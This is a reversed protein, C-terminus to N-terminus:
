KKKYIINKPHIIFHRGLKIKIHYFRYTMLSRNSRFMYYLLLRFQQKQYNRHKKRLCELHFEQMNSPVIPLIGDLLFPKANIM